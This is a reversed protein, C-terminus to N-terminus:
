QMTARHEDFTETFIHSGDQKTEDTHYYFYTHSQPNQAAALSAAGPNCIPGVPLGVVRYTNYPSDVELDRYLVRTVDYMGDSIAYVVSADIELRRNADIRNKIVGAITARESDLKSEREVLSAMTVVEFMSLDTQNGALAEYQTEFEKLMRAIVDHASVGVDFSYTSPFLFGQLRYTYDGDPIESDYAFSFTDNQLTTLFEDATCIGLEEARAAIREVSYGEPVTFSISARQAGGTAIEEILDPICMGSNLHFTGYRLKGNYASGKVRMLFARESRILGNEKLVAAITKASAGEPVEITVAVGAESTADMYDQLFPMALVLALVLLIVVPLLILAAKKM